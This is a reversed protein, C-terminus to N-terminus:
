NIHYRNGFISVGVFLIAAAHRNIGEAIMAEHFIADCLVRSVNTKRYLYDHIVSAKNYKWKDPVFAKLIGISVFDTPTDKPITIIWDSNIHGVRYEFSEAVEWTTGDIYRLKLPSLKDNNM